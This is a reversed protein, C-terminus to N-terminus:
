KSEGQKPERNFHQTLVVVMEKFYDERDEEEWLYFNGKEPKSTYVKLFVNRTCNPVFQGNKERQIIVERKENFPKNKFSRNTGADLLTLNRISSDVLNLKTKFEDIIEGYKKKIEDVKYTKGTILGELKKAFKVEDTETQNGKYSGILSKLIGEIQNIDDPLQSAVAHIHELDWHEHKNDRKRKFKDFPFRYHNIDGSEGQNMLITLINFLLLVNFIKDKDSSKEYDLLNLFEETNDCLTKENKKYNGVLRKIEGNLFFEKDNKNEDNKNKFAKYISCVRELGENGAIRVLYGIKHYKEFDEYCDEFFSFCELAQEWLYKKLFEQDAKEQIKCIKILFSKRTEEDNLIRDFIYFSFRPDSKKLESKWFDKNDEDANITDYYYRALCDFILDIRTSTNDENSLFYWFWDKKLQCEINEWEIAILQRDKYFLDREEQITDGITEPSLDAGKKTKPKGDESLLLARILESSTLPIKNANEKIFTDIAISNNKDDPDKKDDTDDLLPYWIFFTNHLLKSCFSSKEVKFKNFWTEITERAQKVFYSDIDDEKNNGEFLNTRTEYEIKYLCNRSLLECSNRVILFELILYLTTLRQQGDILEWKKGDKDYKVILPQLCYKGESDNIDNLLDTVELETWRYGRQYAPVFFTLGGELLSRVTKECINAENGFTSQVNAWM